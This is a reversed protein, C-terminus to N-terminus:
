PLQIWGYYKFFNTATEDEIQNPTLNNKEDFIKKISHGFSLSIIIYIRVINKVKNITQRM